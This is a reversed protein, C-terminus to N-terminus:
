ESTKSINSIIREIMADASIQDTLFQKYIHTTETDPENFGEMKMSGIARSLMGQQEETLQIENTKM